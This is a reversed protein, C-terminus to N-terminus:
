AKLQNNSPQPHVGDCNFTLRNYDETDALQRYIRVEEETPPKMKNKEEEYLQVLLEWFRM